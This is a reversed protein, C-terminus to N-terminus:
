KTLEFNSDYYDQSNSVNKLDHAKGALHIFANTNLDFTQNSTYRISVSKLEHLSKLYNQLNNGVFGTARTISVKM